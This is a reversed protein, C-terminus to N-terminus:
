SGNEETTGKERGVLAEEWEIDRDETVRAIRVSGMGYDYVLETRVSEQAMLRDLGKHAKRASDILDLGEDVLQVGKKRTLFRPDTDSLINVRVSEDPNVGRTWWTITAIEGLEITGSGSLLLELAPRWRSDDLGRVRM